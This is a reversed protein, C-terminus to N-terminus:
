RLWGGHFRMTTMAAPGAIFRSMAKRSPQAMM